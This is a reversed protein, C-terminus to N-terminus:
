IIKKKSLDGYTYKMIEEYLKNVLKMNVFLKDVNYHEDNLSLKPNVVGACLIEKMHERIKKHSMEKDQNGKELKFTDYYQLMVKSGDLFNMVDIKKIQFRIGNIRIFKTEQLVSDLSKGYFLSKFWNLM